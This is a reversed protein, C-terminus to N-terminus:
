ILNYISVVTLLFWKGNTKFIRFGCNSASVCVVNGPSNYTYYKIM